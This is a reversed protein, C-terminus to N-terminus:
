LELAPGSLEGGNQRTWRDCDDARVPAGRSLPEDGLGLLVFEIQEASVSSKFRTEAIIEPEGAGVRIGREATVKRSGPDNPRTVVGGVGIRYERQLRVIVTEQVEGACRLDLVM